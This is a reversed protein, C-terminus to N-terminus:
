GADRPAEDPTGTSDTLSEERAARVSEALALRALPALDGRVKVLVLESQSLTVVLAEDVRDDDSHTLIWVRQDQDRVRVVTTWGDDLYHDLRRPSRGSRLDDPGSVTFTAVAVHQLSRAAEVFTRTDEGGLRLISRALGLTLPGFAYTRGGEIELGPTSQVLDTRLRRLESSGCGATGLLLLGVVLGRGCGRM